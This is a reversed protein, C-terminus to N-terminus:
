HLSNTFCEVCVIVYVTKEGSFFVEKGGVIRIM